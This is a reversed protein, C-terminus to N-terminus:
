DLLVFATVYILLVVLMMFSILECLTNNWTFRLLLLCIWVCNVFWSICLFVKWCIMGILLFSDLTAWNFLLTGICVMVLLLNLDQKYLWILVALLNWLLVFFFFALCFFFACYKWTIRFAFLGEIIMCFINWTFCEWLFLLWLM